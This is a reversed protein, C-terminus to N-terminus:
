ATGITLAYKPIITVKKETIEDIALNFSTNKLTINSYTLHDGDGGIYFNGTSISTIRGTYYDSDEIPQPDALTVVLELEDQLDFVVPYVKDKIIYILWSNGYHDKLYCYYSYKSDKKCEFILLHDKTMVFADDSRKEFPVGNFLIDTETQIEVLNEKICMALTEKIVDISIGSEGSIQESLTYRQNYISIGEGDVGEFNPNYNKYNIVIGQTESM